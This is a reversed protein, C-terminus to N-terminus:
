LTLFTKVRKSQSSVLRIEARNVGKQPESRLTSCRRKVDKAQYVFINKLRELGEFSGTAPLEPLAYIM